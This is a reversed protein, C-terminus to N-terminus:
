NSKRITQLDAINFVSVQGLYDSETWGFKTESVPLASIDERTFLSSFYENLNEAM